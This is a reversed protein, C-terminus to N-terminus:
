PRLECLADQQELHRVCPRVASDAFYGEFLLTTYTGASHLQRVAAKITEPNGDAPFISAPGDPALSERMEAWFAMAARGIEEDPPRNRVVANASAYLFSHGREGLRTPTRVLITENLLRHYLAARETVPPFMM